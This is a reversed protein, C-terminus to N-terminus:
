KKLIIINGRGKKIKQVIGKQELEAIMLSIKAESLPFENRIEKQTTRGEQKKIFDLMSQLDDALRISTNEEREEQKPEKQGNKEKKTKVQKKTKSLIEREKLFLFIIILIIGVMLAAGIWYYSTQSKEQNIVDEVPITTQILEEEEGFQPFVILDLHFIGTEPVSVNEETEAVTKGRELQQVHLQYTGAPVQIIYMANETIIQQKPQTNITIKVIPVKQLSFDYVTGQITAAEASQVLMFVIFLGLIIKKM